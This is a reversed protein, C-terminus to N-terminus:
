LFSKLLNVLVLLGEFELNTKQQKKKYIKAAIGDLCTVNKTVCSRDSQGHKMHWIKNFNM